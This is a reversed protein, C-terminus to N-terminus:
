FLTSDFPLYGACNVSGCSCKKRSETRSSTQQIVKCSESSVGSYDFTLETNKAIDKVAFLALVPILSDIRVPIMVLLPDCSHNIFRGANGRYVPDVHTCLTQGNKIHEKIVIIYNHDGQNQQTRRKAEHFSIIEGAYECVFQGKTIDQLTKLGWGKNPTPFIELNM